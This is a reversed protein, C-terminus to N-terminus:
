DIQMEELGKEIDKEIKNNKNEYNDSYDSYYTHLHNIFEYVDQIFHLSPEVKEEKMLDELRDCEFFYSMFTKSSPIYYCSFNKYEEEEEHADDELYIQHDCWYFKM